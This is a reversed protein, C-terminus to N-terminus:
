EDKMLGRRKYLKKLAEFYKQNSKHIHDVFAIITKESLILGKTQKEPYKRNQIMQYISMKKKNKSSMEELVISAFYIGQFAEFIAKYLNDGKLQEGNPCEVRKYWVFKEQDGKVDAISIPYARCIIPRMHYISCQNDKFFPCPSEMYFFEGFDKLKLDPKIIRLKKAEPKLLQINITQCCIGGCGKCDLQNEM